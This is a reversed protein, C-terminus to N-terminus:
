ELFDIKINLNKMSYFYDKIEAMISSGQNWFYFNSSEMFAGM